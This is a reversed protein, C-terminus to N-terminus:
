HHRFQCREGYTCNGKAFDKCWNRAPDTVTGQAPPRPAAAQAQQSLAHPPQQYQPQFAPQQYYQQQQYQQPPYQQPHYQQQYQPPYFQAQPPPAQQQYGTFPVPTKPGGGRNAAYTEPFGPVEPRGARTWESKSAFGGMPKKPTPGGRPAGGQAVAQAQPPPAGNAQAAAAAAEKKRKKDSRKGQGPASPQGAVYAGGGAADPAVGSPQGAIKSDALASKAAAQKAPQDCLTTYAATLAADLRGAEKFTKSIVDLMLGILIANGASGSENALVMPELRDFFTALKKGCSDSALYPIATGVPTNRGTDQAEKILRSTTVRTHRCVVYVTSVYTKTVVWQNYPVAAAFGEPTLPM